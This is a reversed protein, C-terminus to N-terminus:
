NQLRCHCCIIWSNVMQCMIISIVIHTVIILILIQATIPNTIHIIVARVILFVNSSIISNVILFLVSNRSEFMISNIIM